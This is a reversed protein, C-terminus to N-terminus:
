DEDVWITYQGGRSELPFTSGKYTVSHTDSTKNHKPKREITEVVDHYYPRVCVNIKVKEM